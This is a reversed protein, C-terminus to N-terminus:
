RVASSYVDAVSAASSEGNCGTNATIKPMTTPSSSADTCRTDPTRRQVTPEIVTVTKAPCSTVLIPLWRGVSVLRWQETFPM